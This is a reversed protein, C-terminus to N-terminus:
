LTLELVRGVDNYGHRQYLSAVREDRVVAVMSKADDFRKSSAKLLSSAVGKRREEPVVYLYCVYRTDGHGVIAIMGTIKGMDDNVLVKGNNAWELVDEFSGMKMISSTGSHEAEMLDFLSRLSAADFVDARRIV